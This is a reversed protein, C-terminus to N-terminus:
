VDKAFPVVNPGIRMGGDKIITKSVWSSKGDENNCKRGCGFCEVDTAVSFYWFWCENKKM